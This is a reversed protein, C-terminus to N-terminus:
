LMSYQRTFSENKVYEFRRKLFWIVSNMRYMSYLVTVVENKFIKVREDALM